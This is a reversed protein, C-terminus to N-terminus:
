EKILKKLKDIDANQIYSPINIYKSHFGYNGGQMEFLAKDKPWGQFIIRYMAIIVGTRDSGQKCHIVLPKRSSKIIKLSEIIEEDTIKNAEMGVNYTSIDTGTLFKKDSFNSRLNLTGNIGISKLYLFGISDPQASRYISDNVKWLNKINPNTIKNAWETPRKDQQCFTINITIVVFLATLILKSITQKIM